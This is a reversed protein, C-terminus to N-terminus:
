GRKELVFWSLDGQVFNPDRHYVFGYDRLELDPYRDLLDGAFDRRFLRGGHGRYDLEEPRPNYYEALMIFRSSSQYMREYVAPLQDPAIHILVGKTFVLDVKEPPTFDLISTHYVNKLELKKLEEVAQANIEVASLEAEPLLKKLARMNMGINAGIELVSKIQSLGSLMKSFFTFNAAELLGDQNRNIYQNGFDGAWFAEQETKYKTM